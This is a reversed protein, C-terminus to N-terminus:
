SAPEAATDSSSLERIFINRFYLPSGHNQLEIQGTPFIPQKRDWYNELTVNDVVLKDNLHVTVKEGVMKIRFTNWEGLPRDALELPGSTNEKNNYLGGSGEPWRAPDWIQVQPSGRLYIGSDGGPGLKWDVLMEFDGYDKTTCLHSGEGDFVLVGNVVKWSKRMVEDAEAQAAALEEPSMEARKLPNSVLGKWGSLDKGNFLATFGAPPKNLDERIRINRIDVRSGHGLFGIHGQRRQLGPHAKGDVTASTAFDNLDQDVIVEGNLKVTIQSGKATVEQENWVGAPKLHGRKAPAVGYISGHYQYPELTAYKSSEDDLIQLEMGSYAVDNALPSRIALGNNAGPTLKFDFRLVFDDYQRATFLNGGSEPICVIAGDEVKYGDVSGTWGALSQGDFLPVFGDADAQPQNAEVEYNVQNVHKEGKKRQDDDNILPLARTLVAIAEPSELGKDRRNIPLAIKLVSLAADDKLEENDLYPAVLLISATTKVDGLSALVLKKEEARRAKKLVDSFLRVKRAPAVKSESLLRIYGRAALVHHSEDQSDGFINLLDPMAQDDSWESLARIAATRIEPENSATEKKVVNLGETGGLRAFAALISEKNAISADAYVDLLPKIRADPDPGRRAVAAVTRQAATREAAGDAELLLKVLRPLDEPTGLTDLAKIAAVRVTRSPSQAQTFIAEKYKTAQRSALIELLMVRAPDSAKPLAGAIADIVDDGPLQLVVQRVADIEDKEESSLQGLLRPLVSKGGLRAAAEIAHRRVQVDESKFADLLAPLAARDDRRGLMAIIEGRSEASADKLHAIWKATAAPGPIRSAFNLAAKRVEPNSDGSATLLDDLADKKLIDVLASLAASQAQVQGSAAREAMLNRCIEVAEKRNGAEAVRRAYLLHWSDIKGLELPTTTKAAADTLAKEAEPVGTSALAYLAARRVDKDDSEVLPALVQAADKARLDGLGYIIALQARGSAEPLAKLLEEAVGSAGTALLARCASDGLEPDTLYPVLASVADEKGVRGLQEMVFTKVQNDDAAGLAEALAGAYLKRETEAGPRTVYWSLSDLMYRSSGDDGEGPAVLQGLVELISDHGAAVLLAAQKHAARQSEAPMASLISSTEDSVASPAGNASFTGGWALCAAAALILRNVPFM